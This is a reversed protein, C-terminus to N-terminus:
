PNSWKVHPHPLDPKTSIVYLDIARRMAVGVNDVRVVFFVVTDNDLLAYGFCNSSRETTHNCVLTEDGIAGARIRDCIM